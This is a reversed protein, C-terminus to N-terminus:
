QHEPPNAKVPINQVSIRAPYSNAHNHHSSSCDQSMATQSLVLTRPEIGDKEDTFVVDAEVEEGPLLKSLAPFDDGRPEDKFKVFGRSDVNLTSELTVKFSTCVAQKGVNRFGVRFLVDHFGPKINRTGRMDTSNFLSKPRVDTKEVSLAVVLVDGLRAQARNKEAWTPGSVLIVSLFLAAFLEGIERMTRGTM